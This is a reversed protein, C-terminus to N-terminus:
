SKPEQKPGFIGVWMKEKLGDTRIRRDREVRNSWASIRRWLDEEKSQGGVAIRLPCYSWSPLLEM